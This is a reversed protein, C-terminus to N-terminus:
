AVCCKQKLDPSLPEQRNLPMQPVLGPLGPLGPPLSPPDNIETITVTVQPNPIIGELKQRILGALEMATLGSAKVDDILPLHLNGKRDVPVTRTIEPHKWVDLRVVDGAHIRYETASAVSHLKEQARLAEGCSVACMLVAVGFWVRFTKAKLM